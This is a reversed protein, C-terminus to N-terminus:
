TDTESELAKLESLLMASIHGEDSCLADASADLSTADATFRLGAQMGPDERMEPAACCQTTIAAAVRKSTDAFGDSPLDIKLDTCPLHDCVIAIAADCWSDRLAPDAWMDTLTARILTMGTEVAKTDRVQAQQRAQTQLAAEARALQQDENRRLEEVVAGVKARATKHATATQQKAAEIAHALIGAIEARAETEIRDILGKAQETKGM